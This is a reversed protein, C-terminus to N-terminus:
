ALRHNVGWVSVATLVLALSVFIGAEIAQFTWFRGSPQYIAYQMVHHQRLCHSVGQLARPNTETVNCSEFMRRAADPATNFTLGSASIYGAAEGAPAPAGVPWTRHLPGLYHQYRVWGEIGLRLALFSVIAIVVAPLTRRLITGVALVAGAAFVTYAIPVVGEFDFANTDLRGNLHDFPGRWWTMLLSFGLGAAVAVGFAVTLRTALWRRRTVTQTWALRHTGHEFELVIPAASLIGFLLPVMNFWNTINVVGSFRAGFRLVSDGCSAPQSKGLSCAALHGDHYVSAIHLGTIVLLAALAAFVTGALIAELRQQRWTLWIM